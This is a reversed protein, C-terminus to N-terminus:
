IVEKASLRSDLMEPTNEKTRNMSTTAIKRATSAVTNPSRRAFSPADPGVPIPPYLVESHSRILDFCVKAELQLILNTSNLYRNLLPAGAPGMRAAVYLAQPDPPDEELLKELAPM